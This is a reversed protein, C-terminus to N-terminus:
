RAKERTKEGLKEEPSAMVDQKNKLVVFNASEAKADQTRGLKSLVMALHSRVAPNGPALQKATELESLSANLDGKALLVRGLIHHAEADKADADLARKALGEAEVLESKELDILALAVMSSVDNPSIELEARFEREAETRKLEFGYLTARFSHVGPQAGYRSELRAAFEDARDFEQHTQAAYLAAEGALWIAERQEPPFDAPLYRMRLSALGMAESLEPLDGLRPAASALLYLSEVFRGERTLLLAFHFVAVDRLDATGTWGANAWARFQTLADGYNGTEYECLGLFAYAPSRHAPSSLLHRFATDAESFRDQDYLLSGLYWWGDSWAPRLQTGERYLRIADAVRDEARAADAQAALKEFRSAALPAPSALSFVPATLTFALLFTPLLSPM